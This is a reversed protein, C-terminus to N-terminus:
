ESLRGACTVSVKLCARSPMTTPLLHLVGGRRKGRVRLRQVRQAATGPCSRCTAEAPAVLTRKPPQSPRTM